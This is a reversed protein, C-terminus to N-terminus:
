VSELFNAPFVWIPIRTGETSLDKRMRSGTKPLKDLALGAALLQTQRGAFTALQPAASPSQAPRGLWTVRLLDGM